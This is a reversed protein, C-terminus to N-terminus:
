GADREERKMGEALNKALGDITKRLREPVARYHELLRREAASLAEPVDAVGLVESRQLAYSGSRVGTVVFAADFRKGGIEIGALRSLASAPIKAGQEWSIVTRASVRAAQGIEAQSLGM